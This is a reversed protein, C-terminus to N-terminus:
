QCTSFRKPEDDKLKFCYLYQKYCIKCFTDNIYSGDTTHLYPFESALIFICNLFFIYVVQSTM